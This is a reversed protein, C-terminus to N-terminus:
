GNVQTSSHGSSWSSVHLEGWTRQVNAVVFVYHQHELSKYEITGQEGNRINKPEEFCSHIFRNVEDETSIGIIKDDEIKTLSQMLEKIAQIAEPNPEEDFSKQHNLERHIRRILNYVEPFDLQRIQDALTGKKPKKPDWPHASFGQFSPNQDGVEVVIATIRQFVINERNPKTHPLGSGICLSQGSVDQLATQLGLMAEKPLDAPKKVFSKLRKNLKKIEEKVRGRKREKGSM